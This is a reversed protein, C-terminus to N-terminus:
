ALLRPADATLAAAELPAVVSVASLVSARVEGTKLNDVKAVLLYSKGKAVGLCCVKLISSGAQRM